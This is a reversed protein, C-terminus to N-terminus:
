FGIGITGGGGTMFRNESDYGGYPILAIMAKLGFRVSFQRAAHYIYNIRPTLGMGKFPMYVYNTGWSNHRSDIKELLMFFDIDCGFRIEHRAAAGLFLPYGLGVGASAEKVEVTNSIDRKSFSGQLVQLYFRRWRFTFFAADFGFGRNTWSFDLAAWETKNMFYSADGLISGRFAQAKSLYPSGEQLGSIYEDMARIKIDTSLDKSRSITRIKNWSDKSVRAQYSARDIESMADTVLSPTVGPAPISSVSPDAPDPEGLPVPSAMGTKSPSLKAAVEALSEALRDELGDGPSAECKSTAGAQSAETALDVIEAKIMYKSGIKMISTILMRDAALSKGLPIHCSRDYCEKYSEKKERRVLEKLANSQQGRDIVIFNGAETLLGRLYETLNDLLRPDLKKSRDQIDMVALIPQDAAQAPLAPNGVLSLLVLAVVRAFM